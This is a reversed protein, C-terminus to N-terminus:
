GQVRVGGGTVGGEPELLDVANIDMEAGFENLVYFLSRSQLTSLLTRGGKTHAGIPQVNYIRLDKLNRLDNM